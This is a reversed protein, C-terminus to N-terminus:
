VDRSEVIQDLTTRTVNVNIHIQTVYDMDLVVTKVHVFQVIKELGVVKAIVSVRRADEMVLVSM